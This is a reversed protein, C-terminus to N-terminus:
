KSGSAWEIGAYVDETNERFIVFDVKEPTKLPSGVGHFYRIPRICAYLDLKQRIAVNLSRIGGGVPTTLPGKIAVRHDRVVTLTEEPLHTGTKAFAKEGALVEKWVISRRGGYAKEVAADFVRVSAAWIDPGVGDGEIFPIVPHDPVRLRGGERTIKEGQMSPGDGTAPLNRIGRAPRSVQPSNPPLHYCASALRDFWVRWGLWGKMGEMGEKGEMGEVRRRMVTRPQLDRLRLRHRSRVMAHNMEGQQASRRDQVSLVSLVSRRFSFVRQSGRPGRSPNTTRAIAIM